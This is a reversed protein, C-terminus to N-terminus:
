FAVYVQFRPSSQYIKFATRAAAPHTGNDAFTCDVLSVTGSKANLGSGRRWGNGNDSGPRMGPGYLRGCSAVTCRAM